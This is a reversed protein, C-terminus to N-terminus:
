ELLVEDAMLLHKSSSFSNIRLKNRVLAFLDM